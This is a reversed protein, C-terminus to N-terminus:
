DRDGERNRDTRVWAQETKASRLLSPILLIKWLIYFPATVLAALDAGANSGMRIAVILHLLVVAFGALALERVVPWPSTVAVVLLLVHFALPLLLLELLPEFSTLKGGMVDALLGPGKERLMRLRGGEWRSRQTKVGKGRVPMEGYVATADVFVVRRGSRVLSIHYELDEVVSTALYPIAALTDQRLGFGNGLIGASLGLNQRGRPRVVNFARLALAMLRTRTSDEANRAVYRAQVAAAGNRMAGATATIFNPAVVTDADVVLVCDFGDDVLREFAYHLAHGKGRLEANHRVMVQAGAAEAVVATTDSCNDAIVYVTVQMDGEDSSLLSEVCSAINAEENHSPIVVAVRWPNAVVAGDRPRQPKVGFMAAVTLWLLEFTGPLATCVVLVTISGWTAFVIERVVAVGQFFSPHDSKITCAPPKFSRTRREDHRRM